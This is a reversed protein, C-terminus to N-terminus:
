YGNRAHPTEGHPEQANVGAGADLLIRTVASSRHPRLRHRRRHPSPKPM